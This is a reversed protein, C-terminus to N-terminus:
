GFGENSRIKSQANSIVQVKKEIEYQM